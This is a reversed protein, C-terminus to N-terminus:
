AAAITRAAAISGVSWGREDFWGWALTHAVGWARMRDPDLGAQALVDLWRRVSATGGQWSADRLVGVANVEAEGVLPKPDIVLWPERAASLINRRHLDQNVLQSAARDVGHFVDVAVDMLGREFPRGAVEYRRPVENAWRSAEDALSRFPHPEEARNPLRELLEVVVGHHDVASDALAIGPRCREILLARREDDREVLLVAGRGAWHDLAHAEHEADRHGPANLKLVVDGAPVVLSRPTAFPEELVLGWRTACEAALRPLAALWGPERRWETQLDPPIRM